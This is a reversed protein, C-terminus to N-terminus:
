KAEEKWYQIKLEEIEKLAEPPLPVNHKKAFRRAGALDTDRTFTRPWRLRSGTYYRDQTWSLRYGDLELYQIRFGYGPNSSHRGM